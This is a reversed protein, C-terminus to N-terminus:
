WYLHIWYFQVMPHWIHTNELTSAKESLTYLLLARDSSSWICVSLLSTLFCFGLVFWLHLRFYVKKKKDCTFILRSSILAICIIKHTALHESGPDYNYSIVSTIWLITSTTPLLDFVILCDLLSVFRFCFVFHFTSFGFPTRVCLTLALCFSFHFSPLLSVCSCTSGPVLCFVMPSFSLLAHCDPSSCCFSHPNIYPFFYFTTPLLLFGNEPFSVHFSCLCIVLSRHRVLSGYSSISILKVCVSLVCILNNTRMYVLILISFDWVISYM